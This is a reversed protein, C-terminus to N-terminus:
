AISGSRDIWFAGPRFDRRVVAASEQIPRNPPKPWKGVLDLKHFNEAKLMCHRVFQRLSLRIDGMARMTEMEAMKTATEPVPHSLFRPVAPPSPSPSPPPPVE